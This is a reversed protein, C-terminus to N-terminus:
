QITNQFNYPTVTNDKRRADNKNYYEARSL